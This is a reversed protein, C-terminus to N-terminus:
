KQADARRLLSVVLAIKERPGQLKGVNPIVIQGLEARRLTRDSIPDCGNRTNHRRRDGSALEDGSETSAVLLNLSFAHAINWDADRRAEVVDHRRAVEGRHLKGYHITAREIFTIACTGFADDHDVLAHRFPEPRAARRNTTSDLKARVIG